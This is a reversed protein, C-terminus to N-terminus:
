TKFNTLKEVTKALAENTAEVYGSTKLENYMLKIVGDIDKNSLKTKMNNLLFTLKQMSVQSGIRTREEQLIQGTKLQINHLQGNFKFIIDGGTYWPTNNRSAVLMDYIGHGEEQFVSNALVIKEDDNMKGAILQVHMKAMHNMFADAVNGTWMPNDGYFINRYTWDKTHWRANSARSKMGDDGSSFLRGIDYDNLLRSNVDGIFNQLHRKIENSTDSQKLYERMAGLSTMNGAKSLVDYEKTAYKFVYSGADTNINDIFLLSVAYNDNKLIKSEFSEWRKYADRFDKKDIAAQIQGIRTHFSDIIEGQLHPKMIAYFEEYNLIDNNSVIGEKLVMQNQSIKPYMRIFAM